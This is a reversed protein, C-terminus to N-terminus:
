YAASREDITAAFDHGGSRGEDVGLARSSLFAGTLTEIAVRENEVRSEMWTLVLSIPM